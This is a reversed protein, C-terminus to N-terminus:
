GASNSCVPCYSPPNAALCGCTEPCKWALPRYLDPDGQCWSRQGGIEFGLQPDKLTPCGGAKMARLVQEVRLVVAQSGSLGVGYVAELAPLYGDWFQHWREDIPADRCDGIREMALQTCTDSCGWAPTRFWSPAAPDTCGCTDSCIFRLLRADGTDCFEQLEECTTVDKRGLAAGAMALRASVRGMFVPDQYFAGGPRLIAPEICLNFELTEALMTRTRATDFDPSAVFHIYQPLEVPDQFKHVSVALELPSPEQNREGATVYGLIMQTDSNQGVVFTQNGGCLEKKVMLMTEGLPQLLGFYPLLLTGALLMLLAVSESQSRRSTCRVKLPELTRIAVQVSMPSFGAFLFEDVDLIANLAVANLMLDAISTTRALWHVGAILLVLAIAFRTFYTAIIAMLRGHSISCIHGDRIVTLQNRPLQAVAELSQWTNRLEKYVCLAWLLICLMCLLIGIPFFGADFQDKDLSMYSNIHTILTAQTTALILSGDGACVRTVLSTASLDVHRYDHAFSTRWQRAVSIKNVFDEGMFDPTVIIISFMVQMGFNLLLLLLSFIVDLTRIDMLGLVIPYTWASEDFHVSSELDKVAVEGDEVEDEVTPTQNCEIITPEPLSDGDCAELASVRAALKEVEVQFERRLWELEARTLAEADPLGHPEELAIRLASPTPM